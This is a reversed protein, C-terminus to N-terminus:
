LKHRGGDRIREFQKQPRGSTFVAEAGKFEEISMKAMDWGDYAAARLLEKTFLLSFPDLVPPLFKDTLHSLVTSLIPATYRKAQDKSM